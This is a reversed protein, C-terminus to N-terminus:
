KKRKRKTKRTVHGEGGSAPKDRAEGIDRHEASYAPARDRKPGRLSVFLSILPALCLLTGGIWLWNVLPKVSVKLMVRMDSDLGLLSAYIEDGLGPITDVESFQMAGFKDYMRRQPAVVGINEGNRSIQLRSTLYEYGTERGGTIEQLIATYQGVAGSEGRALMMDQEQAYPGSFAIGLAMLAMGTHAGLAAPRRFGSEKLLLLVGLLASVAAAAALLATPQRYGFAWLAGAMCVLGGSLALFTKKRRLGGDWSFWPCAAMLVMLGAGLPLCVRNYFAADMGQPAETWFKSFVPWLTATLIIVALASLIWALLLLLGERSELAALPKGRRPAAAATVCAVLLAVAIFVLLPVGVASEGFGHVSEIIGSRVIYTAFFASITTLIMMCVNVRHLKNRREEVILTHVCATSILWPVLSANEVPDWAWYGGWGLEMYAWWAGLVIGATLFVWALLIFPRTLRFWPQEDGRGGALAQALAMC